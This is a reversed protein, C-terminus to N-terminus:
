VFVLQVLVMYCVTGCVISLLTNRRWIHLIATFAGAILEPVFAGPATFRIHRICYIVLTTMIAMPLAKGLYDIIRPIRGNRFLLFPLARELLTCVACIVIVAVAYTANV